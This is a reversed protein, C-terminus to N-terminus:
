DCYSILVSLPSPFIDYCFLIWYNSQFSLNKFFKRAVLVSILKKFMMYMYLACGSMESHVHGCKEHTHCWWWWRWWFCNQKQFSYLEYDGMCAGLIITLKCQWRFMISASPYHLYFSITPMSCTSCGNDIGTREGKSNRFCM